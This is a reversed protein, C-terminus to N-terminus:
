RGNVCNITDKIISDVEKDNADLEDSDRTAERVQEQEEDFKFNEQQKRAKLTELQAKLTEIELDTQKPKGMGTAEFRMDAVQKWNKGPFAKALERFYPVPEGGTAYWKELDELATKEGPLFDKKYILSNDKRIAALAQNLGDEADDDWKGNKFVGITPDTKIATTVADIGQGRAVSIPQAKAIADLYAKNYVETLNEISNKHRPDGIVGTPLQLTMHQNLAGWIFDDRDDTDM